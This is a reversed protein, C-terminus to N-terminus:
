IMLIRLAVLILLGGCLGSILKARKRLTPLISAHGAVGAILCYWLGDCLTAMLAMLLQTTLTTEANVFQSFLALFFVAIKPNLFSILFGDLAAQRLSLSSAQQGSADGILTGSASIAKYGLWILYAAGLWTMLKFLWPTRTIVVAIGAAVLFAYIGIGAAHALATVLGHHRSGQLTSKMVAALSPGPSIAGLVCVALLSLWSSASM